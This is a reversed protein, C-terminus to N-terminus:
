VVEVSNSIKVLVLLGDRNRVHSISISFSIEIVNLRNFVYLGEM